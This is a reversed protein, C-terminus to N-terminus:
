GAGKDARGTYRLVQETVAELADGQGHKYDQFAQWYRFVRARRLPRFVVVLPNFDRRGGFYKFLMVALNPTGSWRSRESWNLVVAEQQLLSVVREDMYSSWLPSDSTVILVSKGRPLWLLWVTLHLFLGYVFYGLLYLLVLPLFVVILVPGLWRPFRKVEEKNRTPM